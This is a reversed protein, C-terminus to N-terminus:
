SERLAPLPGLHIRMEPFALTLHSGEIRTLGSIRFEGFESMRYAELDPRNAIRVEGGEPLEMANKPVVQGLIDTRGKEETPIFSLSVSYDPTEYVLLRPTAQDAARVAHSPALSDATLTAWLEKAAAGIGSALDRVGRSVSDELIAAWTSAVLLPGPEKAGALLLADRLREAEARAGACAPCSELHSRFGPDSPIRGEVRDLIQEWDYHERGTTM